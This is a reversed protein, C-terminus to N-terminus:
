GLLGSLGICSRDDSPATSKQGIIEGAGFVNALVYFGYHIIPALRDLRPHGTTADAPRSTRIRVIFRAVMPALIAMGISMHVLLIRIEQPDTGPMPALSFFGICLMAIILVALLWHLTV